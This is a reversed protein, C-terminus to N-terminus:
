SRNKFQKKQCLIGTLIGLVIVTLTVCSLWILSLKKYTNLQRVIEKEANKQLTKLSTSPKYIKEAVYLCRWKFTFILSLVLLTVSIAIFAALKWWHLQALAVVELSSAFFLLLAIGIATLGSLVAAIGYLLRVFKLKPESTNEM